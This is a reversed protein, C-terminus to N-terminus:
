CCLTWFIEQIMIELLMAGEFAQQLCCYANLIIALSTKASTTLFLDIPFFRLDLQSEFELGELYKFNAFNM